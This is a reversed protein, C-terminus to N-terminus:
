CLRGGQSMSVMAEMLPLPDERWACLVGRGVTMGSRVNTFTTKKLWVAGGNAVKVGQGKGNGTITVEEALVKGGEVKIFNANLGNSTYTMRVKRLDVYGKTLSIAHEGKFEVSGGFMRMTGEEITVGSYVDTYTSNMLVVHGRQTVHLGQVNDKGNGTMTINEVAVTGGEVKIFNPSAGNAGKVKNDGKYTMRVGMLAVGGQNLLIGHEGKFTIEGEFMRVVSGEKVTMGKYVDRVSTKYLDLMGERVKIGEQGTEKGEINVGGLFAYGRTLDIGYDRTFEVSGKEMITVGEEITMGKAVDRLHTEKLWMVGDSMEVGTAVNSIEVQKMMVKEGVTYVGYGNEGSGEITVKTLEAKKVSTGVYVGYGYEGMFQIRTGKELTLTGGTGMMAIGAKVGKISGGSVTLSGGEVWVGVGKSGNNGSGEITVNTLTTNKVRKGAYVGYDGTFNIRTNDKVMLVGYGMMKIGEKVGTITTMGKVMMVGGEAYIGVGNNQGTITVGTLSAMVGKGVYIGYGHEGTFNIRAGKEVTLTGGMMKIGEEVGTIRTNDKVTLSGGMAYIGVGKEAGTIMVGTLTASTVKDGVMVGYNGTFQIRTGGSVTLSGGGTMSIGTRVGKIEGGSVMLVGGEAYIGTGSGQLTIGVQKMVVEGGMAYVGVGNSQGTITVDTLTTSQVSEGVYVGYTGTFNITTGEKVTLSKGEMMTIGTKVDQMTVRTLTLTGGEAYVGVGKSGSGTIKVDTLTASTVGKEVMVGYTGTFGISGGSVTLSGGKVWVGKSGSGGGRITVDTLTASTVKDGVMVGYEGTFQITSNGKVTFTGKGEMAIGKEVGTITVGTLTAETVSSGMLVGTEGGTITVREMVVGGGMVWVGKGSGRSGTITVDTLTARVLGGVGVGYNGTFEIRTNDKVTLTGNGMMYIGTQVKSINMGKVIVNGSGGTMQVGVGNRGNGEIKGGEVTLTGNGTMTIGTKVDQMTVSTLTVNAQGEVKVGYGSGSGTITVDTLTTSRVSSGVKIGYGGAVVNIRTGEKVTLSEGARMNIGTTFGEIRAGGKVTVNGSGDTVNIGTGSGSGTITGGEVTLSKGGEMKIGTTFESINVGKVTVNGDTVSIGTGSGSGTITAGMVNATGGTVELGTGNQGVNIKTGGEVTFTGGAVEVGTKVDKMTVGMLTVNARGTMSLGTETGGGSGRIEGSMMTVKGNNVKFGKGNQGVTIMTSVVNATGSLVEVGTAGAGVQIETGELKVTGSGTVNLGTGGQKVNITSGGNLELTGRTVKAGTELQELTVKTMTLTGTGKMEVGTRNGGGGSGNITMDMVNATGNGMIKMGMKVNSFSQGNLQVTGGNNIVVEGTSGESVGVTVGKMLVVEGNDRVEIVPGMGMGVGITGEVVTVSSKSGDVVIGKQVGTVDANDVTLKGQQHVKIATTDNSSRGGSSDWVKLPGVITIKTSAGTITVATEGSHVNMDITRNGELVGGRGSGEPGGDCMILGSKDDEEGGGAVGQCNKGAYVKTQSTMLALGALIATSLVCLCVHHNFVRRMVM